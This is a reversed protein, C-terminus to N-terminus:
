CDDYKRAMVTVTNADQLRLDLRECLIEGDHMSTDVGRVCISRGDKNWGVEFMTRGDDAVFRVLNADIIAVDQTVSHGIEIRSM